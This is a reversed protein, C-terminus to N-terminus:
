IEITKLVEKLQKLTNMFVNNEINQALQKYSDINNTTDAFDAFWEVFTSNTETIKYMRIIAVYDKMSMTTEEISYSLQHHLLNLDLLQERVYIGNTFHIQRYCGVQKANIDDEIFLKNVQLINHKVLFDFRFDSLIEWIKEIPYDYTISAYCSHLM